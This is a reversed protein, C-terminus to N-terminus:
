FKIAKVADTNGKGAAHVARAGNPNGFTQGRAKAAEAHDSIDVELSGLQSGELRADARNSMWGYAGDLIIRYPAVPGIKPLGTRYRPGCKKRWFSM